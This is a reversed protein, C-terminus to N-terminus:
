EPDASESALSSQEGLRQARQEAREAWDSMHLIRYQEAAQEFYRQALAQDTSSYLQGLAFFVQARGLSQGQMTYLTLARFLFDHAQDIRDLSREVNGMGLLVHAQGFSDRELQYLKYAHAYLGRAKEVNKLRRELDGMGLLVHAQGLLDTQQQYLKRAEAYTSRAQDTQGAARLQNAKDLLAAATSDAAYLAAVVPMGGPQFWTLSWGAFCLLTVIGGAGIYTRWRM